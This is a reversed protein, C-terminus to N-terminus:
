NVNTKHPWCRKCSSPTSSTAAVTPTFRGALDCGALALDGIMDLLKHRVCEDPFRLSNEIPGEPGFVLLDRYTVRNGLGRKRLAEAEAQSTFTRCPAIQHRFTDTTLVIELRQRGIPNRLRLGARVPPDHTRLM